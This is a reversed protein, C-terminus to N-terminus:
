DLFYLIVFCKVCEMSLWKELHLKHLMESYWIQTCDLLIIQNIVGIQTNTKCPTIYSCWYLTSGPYPRARSDFVAFLLILYRCFFRNKFAKFYLISYHHILFTWCISLLQKKFVLNWLLFWDSFFIISMFSFPFIKFENCM